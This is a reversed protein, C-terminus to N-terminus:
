SGSFSGGGAFAGGSILEGRALNVLALCVRRPESLARNWSALVRMDTESQWASLLAL